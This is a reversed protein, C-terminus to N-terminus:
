KQGRMARGLQATAEKKYDRIKPFKGNTNRLLMKQKPSLKNQSTRGLTGKSQASSKLTSAWAAKGQAFPQKKM